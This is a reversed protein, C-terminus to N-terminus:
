LQRVADELNRWRVSNDGLETGATSMFKAADLLLSSAHELLLANEGPKRSQACKELTKMALSMLEATVKYYCSAALMDALVRSRWFHAQAYRQDTPMTLNFIVALEKNALGALVGCIGKHSGEMPGFMGRIGALVPMVSVSEKEGAALEKAVAEIRDAQTRIQAAETLCKVPHLAQRIRDNTSLQMVSQFLEKPNDDIM